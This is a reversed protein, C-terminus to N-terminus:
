RADIPWWWSKLWRFFVFLRCLIVCFVGPLLALFISGGPPELCKIKQFVSQDWKAWPPMYYPLLVKLRGRWWAREAKCSITSGTISIIDAQQTQEQICFLDCTDWPKGYSPNYHGIYLWQFSFYNIVLVPEIIVFYTMGTINSWVTPQGLWHLFPSLGFNSCQCNDYIAPKHVFGPPTLLSWINDYRM